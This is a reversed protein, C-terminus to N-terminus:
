GDGDDDDGAPESAPAESYPAAATDSTYDSTLLGVFGLSFGVLMCLVLAIFGADGRLVELHLVLGFLILLLGFVIMKLPRLTLM